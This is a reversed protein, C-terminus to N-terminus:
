GLGPPCFLMAPRCPRLTGHRPPPAARASGVWGEGVWGDVRGVARVRKEQADKILEMFTGEEWIDGPLEVYYSPPCTPPPHHPHNPAHHPQTCSTPPHM